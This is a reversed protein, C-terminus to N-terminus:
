KGEESLHRVLYSMLPGQDGHRFTLKGRHWMAYCRLATYEYPQISRLHVKM